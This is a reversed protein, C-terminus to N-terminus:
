GPIDCRADKGAVQWTSGGDKSFTCSKPSSNRCWFVVESVVDSGMRDEGSELQMGM